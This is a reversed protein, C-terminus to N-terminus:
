NSPSPATASKRGVLVVAAGSLQSQLNTVFLYIIQFNPPCISQCTGGGTAAAKGGDPKQAGGHTLGDQYTGCAAEDTGPIAHGPWPRRLTPLLTNSNDSLCHTGGHTAAGVAHPHALAATRVNGCSNPPDV